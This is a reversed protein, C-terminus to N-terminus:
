KKPPTINKEPVSRSWTSSKDHKAMEIAKEVAQRTTMTTAATTRAQRAKM